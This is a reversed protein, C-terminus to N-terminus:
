VVTMRISARCAVVPAACCGLTEIEVVLGPTYTETDERQGVLDWGRLREIEGLLVFQCCLSEAVRLPFVPIEEKCGVSRSEHTFVQVSEIIHIM